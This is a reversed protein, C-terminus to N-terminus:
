RVIHVHGIFGEVNALDHGDRRRVRLGNLVEPKGVADLALRLRDPVKQPDAQVEGIYRGPLVRLVGGALPLGPLVLARM